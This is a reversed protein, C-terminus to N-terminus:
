GNGQASESSSPGYSLAKGLRGTWARAAAPSSALADEIKQAQAETLKVSFSPRESISFGSQDSIIPFTNFGASITTAFGRAETGNWFASAHGAVLGVELGNRSTKAKIAEPTGYISRSFARVTGGLAARVGVGSLHKATIERTRRDYVLESGYTSAVGAAVENLVGIAIADANADMTPAMMSVGRAFESSLAEPDDKKEEAGSVLTVLSRVDSAIRAMTDKVPGPVVSGIGDLVSKALSKQKEEVDEGAKEAIQDANKTKDAGFGKVLKALFGFTGYVIKALYGTGHRFPEFSLKSAWSGLSWSGRKPKVGSAQLEKAIEGARNRAADLTSAIEENIGPLRRYNPTRRNLDSVADAVDRGSELAAHLDILASLTEPDGKNITLRAALDSVAAQLESASMKKLEAAPLAPVDIKLADPRRFQWLRKVRDLPSRNANLQQVSAAISDVAAKRHVDPSETVLADTLAPPLKLPNDHRVKM